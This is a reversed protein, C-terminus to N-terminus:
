MWPRVHRTTVCTTFAAAALSDGTRSVYESIRQLIIVSLALLPTAPRPTAEKLGLLRTSAKGSSAGGAAPAAVSQTCAWM